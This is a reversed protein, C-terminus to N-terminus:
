DTIHITVDATDDRAQRVECVLEHLLGELAPTWMVGETSGGEFAVLLRMFRPEFTSCAMAMGPSRHRQCRYCGAITGGTTTGPSSSQLSDLSGPGPRTTCKCMRQCIAEYEAREKPAQQTLSIKCTDRPKKQQGSTSPQPTAPIGIGSYAGYVPSLIYVHHQTLLTIPARRSPCRQYTCVM